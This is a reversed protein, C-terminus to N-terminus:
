CLTISLILVNPMVEEPNIDLIRQHVDIAKGGAQEVIYSAPACEYLLRLIGNKSNKNNPNGYIGGYLLM